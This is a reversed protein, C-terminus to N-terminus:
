GDGTDSNHARSFAAALIGAPMAVAAIGVIALLSAVGKGAATIPYADGYGVTTLTAMSWWLARPISGFAEPQAAGEVYYMGVAGFFILSLSIAVSVLLEDRSKRLASITYKLGKRVFELKLIQVLRLLRLARLIVSGNAAPILLAPLFALLDIFGYRSFIYGPRGKPHDSAVWIRLCYELAFVIVVILNLIRLIESNQFETEIAFIGISLLIFFLLVAGGLASGNLFNDIRKKM